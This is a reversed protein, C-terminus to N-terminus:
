IKAFPKSLGVRWSTWENRLLAVLVVTISSIPMLIAAVVPTLLGQVAFFLGIINYLLSVVFLMRITKRAQLAYALMPSLAPLSSAHLILDSAPSFAYLDEVLAVGVDAQKLAGADNLGDGVMAVRMGRAQMAAIHAMKDAPSQSFWMARRGFMSAYRAAEGNGDGSLLFLEYREGLRRLEDAVGDRMPKQVSFGGAWCGAIALHVSTGATNLDENVENVNAGDVSSAVFTAHGLRVTQGGIRAEIGKGAFEQFGEIPLLDQDQWNHLAMLHSLIGRSLPHSSSHALSAAMRQASKTMPQSAPGFHEVRQHGSHTLTGTKDFVIADIQALKDVVMANKLFAGARGLGRMASGYTFPVSLALACPCAVILTATFADWVLGSGLWLHVVAALVAISLITPTFIGSLQNIPDTLEKSAPKQFAEANWLRTLKSSEVPAEVKMEMVAGKWCSGAEIETGAGAPVPDSEGTIFSRDMVGAGAEIRGDAPAIEGNHIRIRDGKRLERIRVTEPGQKSLRVVSIPFWSEYAREHSLSNYTHNQYWKGILLFFVLGALSDFYGLGAGSIVETASRVFLTIMGIVVPVDINLRKDKIASWASHWYGSGSYIMVPIALAMGIWGFMAKFESSAFSESQAYDALALLMINGFSFGAVALRGVISRMNQRQATGEKSVVAPAYGLDALKTALESLKLASLDLVVHLQKRPLDVTTEHLGDIREALHELFGVCAACHMSPLLLVTRIRRGPGGMPRTHQDLHERADLHAWKVEAPTSQETSNTSRSAVPCAVASQTASLPPSQIM